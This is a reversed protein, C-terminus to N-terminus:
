EDSLYDYDYSETIYDNITVTNAQLRKMRLKSLIMDSHTYPNYKQEM